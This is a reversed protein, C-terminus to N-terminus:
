RLGWEDGAWCGASPLVKRCDACLRNSPGESRFTRDCKLCRRPRRLERRDPLDAWERVDDLSAEKNHNTM